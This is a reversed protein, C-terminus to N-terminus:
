YEQNYFIYSYFFFLKGTVLGKSITDSFRRKEDAQPKTPAACPKSPESWKEGKLATLQNLIDLFQARQESTVSPPLIM